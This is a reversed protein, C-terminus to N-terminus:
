RQVYALIEDRFREVDGLGPRASIQIPAYSAFVGLRIEGLQGFRNLRKTGVNCM